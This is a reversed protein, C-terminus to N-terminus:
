APTFTAASRLLNRKSETSRPKTATKEAGSLISLPKTRNSRRASVVRMLGAIGMGLAASFVVFCWLAPLGLLFILASGAAFLLGIFGGGVPLKHLSIGPHPKEAMPVESLSMIAGLRPLSLAKPWFLGAEITNEGVFGLGTNSTTTATCIKGVNFARVHQRRRTAPFVLAAHQRPFVVARRVRLRMPQSGIGWAACCGTHVSRPRAIGQPNMERMQTQPEIPSPRSRALSPHQGDGRVFPMMRPQNRRGVAPGDRHFVNQDHLIGRLMQKRDLM